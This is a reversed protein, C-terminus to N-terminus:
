LPIEWNRSTDPIFYITCIESFKGSLVNLFLSYYSPYTLVPLDKMPQIKTHDMTCVFLVGGLYINCYSVKILIIDITALLGSGLKGFEDCSFIDTTLLIYM